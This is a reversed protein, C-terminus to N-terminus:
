YNVISMSTTSVECWLSATNVKLICPCCFWPIILQNLHSSFLYVTHYYFLLLLIICVCSQWFFLLVSQNCLSCCKLQYSRFMYVCHMAPEPPLLFPPIWLNHSPPLARNRYPEKYLGEYWFFLVLPVVKQRLLLAVISAMKWLHTKFQPCKNWM